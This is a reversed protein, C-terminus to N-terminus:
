KVDGDNGSEGYEHVIMAKKGEKKRAYVFFGPKHESHGQQERPWHM